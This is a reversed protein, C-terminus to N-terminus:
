VAALDRLATLQAKGGYVSVDCLLDVDEGRGLRALDRPLRVDAVGAEAVLVRATNIEYPEGTKGSVGSRRDINLIPGTVRVTADAM